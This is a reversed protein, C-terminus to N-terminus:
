KKTFGDKKNPIEFCIEDISMSFYDAIIKVQKLSRPEIGSLWGHIAQLPIKTARSLHAATIGSIKFLEKLNDKLRM